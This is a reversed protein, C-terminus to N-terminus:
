MSVQLYAKGTTLALWTTLIKILNTKGAGNQGLIGFLEPPKIELNIDQQAVLKKPGRKKGSRTIYIRSLNTTNIAFNM